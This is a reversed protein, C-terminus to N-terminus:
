DPNRTVFFDYHDFETGNVVLRVQYKGSKLVNMPQFRAMGPGSTVDKADLLKGNSLDIIHLSVLFGGYGRVVAVPIETPGFTNQPRTGAPRMSFSKNLGPITEANAVVTYVGRTKERLPDTSCSTFLATLLLFLPWLTGGNCRNTTLISSDPM